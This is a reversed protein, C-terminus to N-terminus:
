SARREQIAVILQDWGNIFQRRFRQVPGYDKFEHVALGDETWAKEFDPLKECLEEIVECSTELSITDQVPPDLAIIEAATSWNITIHADGGVLGTFHHIGRAGGGLMIGAYGREKLLRYQKRAVSLGAQALVDPAIDIQLPDVVERELYRDFIGTIHTVFFAPKKGTESSVREYLECVATMQSIGFVETAIVPVDERLLVGVAELGAETVPIKAIFNPGLSSFRHAEEVIHHADVDAFPNGQVSVYGLTGETEDYLPRFREIVRGALRKLALEAVVSDSESEGLCEDIVGLTFERDRRLMNSGYTPNTTCAVAGQELALGIELITPNNIWLRTNTREKVRAFYSGAMNQRRGKMQNAFQSNTM